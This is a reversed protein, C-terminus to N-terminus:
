IILFHTVQFAPTLINPGIQSVLELFAAEQLNKRFANALKNTQSDQELTKLMVILSHLDVKAPEADVQVNPEEKCGFLQTSLTPSVANQVENNSQVNTADLNFPSTSPKACARFTTYNNSELIGFFKRWM